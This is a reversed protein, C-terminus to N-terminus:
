DWQLTNVLVEVGLIEGAIIIDGNKVNERFITTLVKLSIHYFKIEESSNINYTLNGAFM